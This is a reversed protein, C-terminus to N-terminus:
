STTPMAIFNDFAALKAADATAYPKRSIWKRDGLREAVRFHFGNWSGYVVINYGDVNLYENNKASLRWDRTLWRKRRAAKSKMRREREPAAAKDIEMNSACDCGVALGGPYDAHEMYHVYRIQQLECMECTADPRGLDEVGVCIWGRHPVGAESWKGFSSM